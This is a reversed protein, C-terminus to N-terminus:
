HLNKGICKQWIDRGSSSTDQSENERHSAIAVLPQYCQHCVAVRVPALLCQFLTAFEMIVQPVEATGEVCHQCKHKCAQCQPSVEQGVRSDGVGVHGMSELTSKGLSYSTEGSKTNCYSDMAVASESVTDLKGIGASLNSASANPSRSFITALVLPERRLPPCSRARGPRAHKEQPYVSPESIHSTM